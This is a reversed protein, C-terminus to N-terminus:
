RGSSATQPRRDTESLELKTGAIEALFHVAADEPVALESLMGVNLYRSAPVHVLGERILAAEPMLYLSVKTVNKKPFVTRNVKVREVDPWPVLISNRRAQYHAGAHDVIVAPPHFQRWDRWNTVGGYVYMFCVLLVIITGAGAAVGGGLMSIVGVWNWPDVVIIVVGLVAVLVGVISVTIGQSYFKWGSSPFRLETVTLM